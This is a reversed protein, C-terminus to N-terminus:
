HTKRLYNILAEEPNRHNRLVIIMLLGLVRAQIENLDDKTCVNEIHKMSEELWMELIEVPGEHLFGDMGELEEKEVVGFNSALFFSQELLSKAMIRQNFEGESRYIASWTPFDLLSRKHVKNMKNNIYFYAIVVIAVVAGIIFEM